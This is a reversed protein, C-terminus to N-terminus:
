VTCFIGISWTAKKRKLNKLIVQFVFAMGVHWAFIMTVQMMQEHSHEDWKAFSGPPYLIFGV